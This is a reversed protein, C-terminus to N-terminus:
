RLAEGPHDNNHNQNEVVDALWILVFQLNFTHFCNVIAAQVCLPM